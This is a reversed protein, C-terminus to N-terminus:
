AARAPAPSSRARRRSIRRRGREKRRRGRHLPLLAPLGPLVSPPDPVDAPRRRTRRGRQGSRRSGRRLEAGQPRRAPRLARAPHQPLSLDDRAAPEIHVQSAYRTKIAALEGESPPNESQATSFADAKGSIVDNVAEDPTGGIEVVIEDPYGDPQAAKSWEHFYPNRVLTLLHNPRYSTIMYPGTAPLPPIARPGSRSAANGRARDRRLPGQLLFEPDPAVLHFTVTRAADDAVIGRSLDCRKPSKECRTAGVIGDYYQRLGGLKFDREITYRFDSPKLLSGNSYRINPRLRFTYTKGGDTPTPLSVALDPVLQQGQLGSAQDVRRPRREDHAPVAISTTDYALATDISDPARNMRMTLTGGRHGAGSQRVSVLM